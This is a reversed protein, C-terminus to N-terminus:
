AGGRVHVRKSACLVTLQLRRCVTAAIELVAPQNGEAEGLMPPVLKGANTRVSNLAESTDMM